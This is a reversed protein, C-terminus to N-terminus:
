PGCDDNDNNFASRTLTIGYTGDDCWGDGGWAEATVQDVCQLACDYIKGNGCSNGPVKAVLLNGPVMQLRLHNPSSEPMLTYGGGLDGLEDALLV